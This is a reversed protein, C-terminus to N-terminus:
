SRPGQSLPILRKLRVTSLPILREQFALSLDMMNNWLYDSDYIDSVCSWNPTV